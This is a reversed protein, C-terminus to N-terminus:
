LIRDLLLTVTLVAPYTLVYLVTKWTPDEPQLARWGGEVAKDNIPSADHCDCDCSDRDYLGLSM